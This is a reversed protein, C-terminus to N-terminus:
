IIVMTIDISLNNCRLTLDDKSLSGKEICMNEFIRGKDPKKGSAMIEMTIDDMAISFMKLYSLALKISEIAGSSLNGIIGLGVSTQFLNYIKFQADLAESTVRRDKLNPVAAAADFTENVLRAFEVEVEAILGKKLAEDVIEFSDKNKIPAAVLTGDKFILEEGKDLVPLSNIEITVFEVSDDYVAKAKDSLGDVNQKLVIIDGNKHGITVKM